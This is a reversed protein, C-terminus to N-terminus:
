PNIQHYTYLAFIKGAPRWSSDEKKKLAAYRQLKVKIDGVELATLSPSKYAEANASLEVKLRQLEEEEAETLKAGEEGEEEESESSSETSTSGEPEEKELTTYYDDLRKLEQNNSQFQLQQELAKLPNLDIAQLKTLIGPLQELKDQILKKAQTKDGRVQSAWSAEKEKEGSISAVSAAKSDQAAKLEAEVDAILGTKKKTGSTVLSQVRAVFQAAEHATLVDNSIPNPHITQVLLPAKAFAAVIDEIVKQLSTVYGQAQAVDKIDTRRGEIQNFQNRLQDFAQKQAKLEPMNIIVYVAYDAKWRGGVNTKIIQDANPYIFQKGDHIFTDASPIVQQKLIPGWVVLSGDQTIGITASLPGFNEEHISPITQRLLLVPKKLSHVFVPKPVGQPAVVGVPQPQPQPVPAPQPPQPAPLPGPAPPPPPTPMLTQARNDILTTFEAILAPNAAHLKLAELDLRAQDIDQQNFTIKTKFADLRVQEPMIPPPPLPPVPIPAQGLQAGLATLAATLATLQQDLQASMQSTCLLSVTLLLLKKM